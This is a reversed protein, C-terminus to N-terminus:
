PREMSHSPCSHWISMDSGSILLAQIGPREEILRACLEPGKLRPMEVDAIVLDISGSYERSLQLAEHGDAASLVAHGDRRVLASVLKRFVANDDVVLIVAQRPAASRLELLDARQYTEEGKQTGPNEPTMKGQANLPRGPAHSYEPGISSSTPRYAWARTPLM